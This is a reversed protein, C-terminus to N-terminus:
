HAIARYVRVDAAETNTDTFEAAGWFAINTCLNFWNTFDESYQLTYAWNLEGKLSLRFAGDADRRANTFLGPIPTLQGLGATFALVTDAALPNGSLDRFGLGHELANLIIACWGKGEFSRGPGMVLKDGDSNWVLPSIYPGLGGKGVVRISFNTLNMPETFEFAIPTNTPVGVAGDNPSTRIVVPPTNDNSGQTRIWFDTQSFLFATGWAGPYANTFTTQAYAFVLRGLYARGPALTGGPITMWTNTGNLADPTEPVYASHFFSLGTRQLQFLIFDAPKAGAFPQWTLTFDNAADVGQAAPLNAIEPAPPFAGNVLEVGVTREKPSEHRTHITFEYPGDPYAANLAAQDAYRGIGVLPVV